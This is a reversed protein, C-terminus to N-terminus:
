FKWGLSIVFNSNLDPKTQWKAQYVDGILNLRADITFMFLDVGAGVELGLAANRFEGKLENENLTAGSSLNKFDLSSGANLRFKPGLFARLNFLKLDVIKYGVLVPVDITSFTVFKDVTFSPNTADQLTLNYRKNQLAYLLEPQLYIKNGVDFRAFVGAHFGNALEGSVNNLTYTGSPVASVNDLNLSSNYGGKVGFNFQASAFFWTTLLVTCILIIRKM